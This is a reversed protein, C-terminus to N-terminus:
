RRQLQQEVADTITRGAQLSRLLTPINDSINLNLNIRQGPNTDPNTGQLKVALALDGNPLYDVGTEMVDYQYNSLTKNVFDLAANGSDAGSGSYRINGGPFEAFLTGAAISVAGDRLSVPLTGSVLGSAAVGEYASLALISALDIQELQLQLTGEPKDIAFRGGDSRVHGNFVSAELGAVSFTNDGTDFEIEAAINQIPIGPDVSTVTVTTPGKSQMAFKDELQAQLDASVGLIATEGWFGSLERLQVHLPGQLEFAGSNGRRISLTADAEVSGAVIDGAFDTSTFLGSLSGSAPSFDLLPVRLTATGEDLTSDFSMDANLVLRDAVHVAASLSYNTGDLEVQARLEPRRITVPLANTSLDHMHANVSLRSGPLDSLTGSASLNQLTLVAATQLDGFRTQPARLTAAASQAQWADSGDWRLTMTEDVHMGAARTEFSDLGLQELAIDFGPRLEVRVGSAYSLVQSSGRLSLGNVLLARTGAANTAPQTWALPRSSQTAAALQLTQNLTCEGSPTCQGDLELTEIQLLVLENLLPLHLQTPSVAITLQHASSADDPVHARAQLALQGDLLAYTEFASDSARAYAAVTALDANADLDLTLGDDTGLASFEMNLAPKNQFHIQLDATITGPAMSHLALENEPILHSSVFETDHWNARLRVNLDSADLTSLLGRSDRQMHLSAADLWPALTLSDVDIAAIPFQVLSALVPAIDPMAFPTAGPTASTALQLDAQSVRIGRLQGQLVERLTFTMQLNEVSSRSAAGPLSFQLSAIQLHSRGIKLGEMSHLAVGYDFLVLRATALLLPGRLVYASGGLLALTLAVALLTRGIRGSGSTNGAMNM